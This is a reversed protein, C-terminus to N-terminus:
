RIEGQENIDFDKGLATRIEPETIITGTVNKYRLQVNALTVAGNYQVQRSAISRLLNINMLIAM